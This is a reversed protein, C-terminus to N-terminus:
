PGIGQSQLIERVLGSKSRVISAASMDQMLVKCHHCDVQTDPKGWVNQGCAGCTFKIKSKPAATPNARMASQLNLKWGKAHL